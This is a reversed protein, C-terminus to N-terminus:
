IHILSLLMRRTLGVKNLLPLPNVGLKRAVDEYHSLVAARVQMVKHSKVNERM